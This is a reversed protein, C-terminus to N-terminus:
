KGTLQHAAKQEVDIVWIQQPGDGDRGAPVRVFVIQSGDPSWRPDISDGVQSYTLRTQDTGDAAMTYVETNGDRWSMFAIRNGDPSWTPYMGNQPDTTLRTLSSADMELVHIDRRVHFALRKGDPSWRPFWNTYIMTMRQQDSGDANMLYIQFAGVRDSMFAIKSGDPSWAAALDKGPSDTLQRPDSGDANMVWIDFNGARESDFLIQSGDPSWCPYGDSAPHDTLQKNETGDRNMQYIEGNGDRDSHYVITSGDPSWSPAGDHVLTAARQEDDPWLTWAIGVVLIALVIAVASKM